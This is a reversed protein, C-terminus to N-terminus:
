RWAHPHLPHSPGARQLSAHLPAEHRGPSPADKDVTRVISRYSTAKPFLKYIQRNPDRLACFAQAHVSSCLAAALLILSLLRTM